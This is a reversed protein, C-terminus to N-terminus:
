NWLSHKINYAGRFQCYTNNCNGEDALPTAIHETSTRLVYSFSLATKVKAKTGNNQEITWKSIRSLNGNLAVQNTHFRLALMEISCIMPFPWNHGYRAPWLFNTTCEPFIEYALQFTGNEKPKGSFSAINAIQIRVPVNQNWFKGTLVIIQPYSYSGCPPKFTSPIHDTLMKGTKVSIASWENLFIQDTFKNIYGFVYYGFQCWM